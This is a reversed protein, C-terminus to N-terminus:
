KSNVRYGVALFVDLDYIKPKRGGSSKGSIGSSTKKL